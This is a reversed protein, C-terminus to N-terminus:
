SDISKPPSRGSAPLSALRAQPPSPVEHASAACHQEFRQSFPKQRGDPVQAAGELGQAVRLAQQLARQSGNSLPASVHRCYQARSPAPQEAACSQQESAQLAPLQPPRSQPTTPLAQTASESQQEL